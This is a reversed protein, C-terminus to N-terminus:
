TPAKIGIQGGGARFKASMEAMGAEAEALSGGADNQAAADRRIDQSIKMSCFKPGCMSCFHATKHAEKPLTADHYKRATEPDLGLNFQDEWRFEFRARSLADDHLRAAPHGKALDAAHAAIKYTIVGDKVDQRDPLGLHEKPTVYCLMATGFWGIMAAGIASTIHDYGPAIDTTLPGLTYFPAEHCHKLQEDMNAKIKHMPVHGPGEIMVQCGKAWAIKTLEGLTRLEAFQAEDNADAISGPRLGDGLSFSVDYARMIDCIDEFHEYLFSERHHSLCWKAMISGGRSVIGTVRRATMPVFPLRVGSHITFYDVGQEAQEILTDRFVEWTLDEAVGNVKELAQYIPVTGIPVSSNRIIWDRINHINRGTSLDMVNDAGWRTAWVLKDVEDDVSSLVASNGINANIKVLFNRGIIMPEVEPHNINHPIIARGRAIESRVFEPTVYDPISAGFSEGDRTSPRPDLTSSPSFAANPSPMTTGDAFTISGADSGRGEVRSGEERRLNERIAVYEMEPTIIGAKAYEYQTVPRGEVGKFVRHNSVDFRPALNKGSAHGNDEPRVERPNLVPAIDGRDLQWSSKVLPLGRKIDITVTPDTYPGSSDYITVPPENASPHVAVERFPVRIDPYLEGAVYVKRSGAREGTPITGTERMVQDRADKLALDVNPEEPLAPPTVAINM